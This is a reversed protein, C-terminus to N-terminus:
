SGQPVPFGTAALDTVRSAVHLRGDSLLEDRGVLFLRLTRSKQLSAARGLISPNSGTKQSVKHLQQAAWTMCGSASSSSDAAKDVPKRESQSLQKRTATRRLGVAVDQARGELVATARDM